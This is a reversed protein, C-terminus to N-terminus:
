RNFPIPKQQGSQSTYIALQTYWTQMFINLLKMTPNLCWFLQFEGLWWRTPIYMWTNSEHIKIRFRVFVVEVREPFHGPEKLLCDELQCELNRPSGLWSCKSERKKQEVFFPLVYLCAWFWRLIRLSVQGWECCLPSYLGKQTEFESLNNKAITIYVKALRSRSNVVFLRPNARRRTKNSNAM